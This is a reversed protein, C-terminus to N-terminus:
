AASMDLLAKRVQQLLTCNSSFVTPASVLQSVLAEVAGRGKAAAVQSFVHWDEVGDRQAELRVTSVMAGAGSGADVAGPYIYVGDGNAWIDTRPAWVWVSPDWPLLRQDAPLAPVALPALAVPHTVNSATTYTAWFPPAAQWNEWLAVDYYLHSSVGLLYDYWFLLRAEILDREIFTNLFGPGSPEICHYVGLEHGAAVWAAAVSPVVLQYQLIWTDLPLDLPVTAWDIASLTRVGPFAAKAAAFLTRM